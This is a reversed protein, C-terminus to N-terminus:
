LWSRCMVSLAPLGAQQLLGMYMGACPTVPWCCREGDDHTDRTAPRQGRDGERAHSGGERARSSDRPLSGEDRATAARSPPYERGRERSAQASRESSRERAAPRSRERSGEQSREKGRVPAEAKSDLRLRDRSSDRARDATPARRQASDRERTRERDRDAARQRDRDRDRDTPGREPSLQRRSGEARPQERSTSDGVAPAARRDSPLGSLRQLVPPDAAAPERSSYKSSVRPKIHGDPPPQVKDLNFQIRARSGSHNQQGDQQQEQAASPDQTPRRHQGDDPRHQGGEPAHQDHEAV